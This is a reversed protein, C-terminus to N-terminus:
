KRRYSEHKNRVKVCKDLNLLAGLSKEGEELLDTDVCGAPTFTLEGFYIKSEYFYLDVRVYTFEKSLIRATEIMEDLKEPREIKKQVNLSDKTYPLINWSTDFMISKKNGTERESIVEIIQPKGNFCHIKYDIPWSGEKTGLFREVLIKPAIRSYHPEASILSYDTNMWKKLKMKADNVDLLSKDKCVIYCGSGHNCKIVFSEPLRDFEVDEVRDYVAYIDNLINSLGMKKVYDRVRVKDACLAKLSDEEYLKLWMLKENFQKPNKLDMRKGFTVYYKIKSALVPTRKALFAFSSRYLSDTFKFSKFLYKISVKFVGKFM